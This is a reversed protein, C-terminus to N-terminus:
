TAAAVVRKMLSLGVTRKCSFSGKWFKLQVSRPFICDSKNRRQFRICHGIGDFNLSLIDQTLSEPRQLALFPAFAPLAVESDGLAWLRLASCAYASQKHIEELSEM